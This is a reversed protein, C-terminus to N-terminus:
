RYHKMEETNKLSKGKIKVMRIIINYELTTKETNVKRSIKDKMVIYIHTHIHIQISLVNSDM